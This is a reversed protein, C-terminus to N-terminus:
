RASCIRRIETWDDLAAHAEYVAECFSPLETADLAYILSAIARAKSFWKLGEETVSGDETEDVADFYKEDFKELEIALNDRDQMEGALKSDTALDGLHQSLDNRVGTRECALTAITRALFLRDKESLSMAKQVLDPAESDLRSPTNM